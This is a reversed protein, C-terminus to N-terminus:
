APDQYAGFVLCKKTKVVTTLEICSFLNYKMGKAVGKCAPKDYLPGRKKGYLLKHSVFAKGHCLAIGVQYRIM